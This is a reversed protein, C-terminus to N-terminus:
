KIQSKIKRVRDYLPFKKERDKEEGAKGELQSAKMIMKSVPLEKLSEKVEEEGRKKKKGTKNKKIMALGKMLDGFDGDTGDSNGPGDGGSDGGGEGGCSECAGEFLAAKREQLSLKKM